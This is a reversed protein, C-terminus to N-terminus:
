SPKWKPLGPNQTLKLHEVFARFYLPYESTWRGNEGEKQRPVNLCSTQSFIIVHVCVCVGDMYNTMRVTGAISYACFLIM